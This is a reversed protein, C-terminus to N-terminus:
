PYGTIEGLQVKKQDLGDAYLRVVLMWKQQNFNTGFTKEKTIVLVIITTIFKYGFLFNAQNM